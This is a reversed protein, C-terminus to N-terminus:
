VSSELYEYSTLGRHTSPESEASADFRTRVRVFRGPPIEPIEISDMLRTWTDGNLEQYQWQQLHTGLLEPDTPPQSTILKVKLATRNSAINRVIFEKFGRGGEDSYILEHRLLPFPLGDRMQTPLPTTGDPEYFSLIM